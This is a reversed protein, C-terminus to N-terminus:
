ARNRRKFILAFGILALLVSSPEPVPSAELSPLKGTFIEGDKLSLQTSGYSNWEGAIMTGRIGRHQNVVADPALLNGSFDRGQINIEEADVFNWLLKSELDGNVSWNWNTVKGYVNIVITDSSQVNQFNLTKTDTLAGAALSFVKLDGQSSYNSLNVQVENRDSTDIASGSYNSLITQLSKMEAYAYEFFDTKIGSNLTYPSQVLPKGNAGVGGYYFNGHNSRLGNGSNVLNGGLLVGVKNLGWIDIQSKITNSQKAEYAGTWNGQVAIAGDSHGSNTNANGFVLASLSTASGLGLVLEAKVSTLTCLAVLAATTRVLFRAFRISVM